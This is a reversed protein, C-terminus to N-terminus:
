RVSRSATQPFGGWAHGSDRWKEPKRQTKRTMDSSNKGGVQSRFQFASSTNSEHGGKTSVFAPITTASIAFCSPSPHHDAACPCCSRQRLKSISGRAAAELRNRDNQRCSRRGTAGFSLWWLITSILVAFKATAVGDILVACQSFGGSLAKLLASCIM